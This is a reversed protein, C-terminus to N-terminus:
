CLTGYLFCVASKHVCVDTNSNSRAAKSSASPNTKEYASEEDHQRVGSYPDVSGVGGRDGYPDDELDDDEEISITTSRNEAQKAALPLREGPAISTGHSYMGGVSAKILHGGQELILNTVKQFDSAIGDTNLAVVATQHHEETRGTSRSRSAKFHM